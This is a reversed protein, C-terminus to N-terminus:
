NFYFNIFPSEESYDLDFRILYNLNFYQNEAYLFIGEIEFHVRHLKLDFSPGSNYYGLCYINAGEIQKNESITKIEQAIIEGQTLIKEDKKCGSLIIIALFFSIIIISRNM